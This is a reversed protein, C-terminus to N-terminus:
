ETKNEKRYTRGDLTSSLITRTSHARCFQGIRSEGSSSV